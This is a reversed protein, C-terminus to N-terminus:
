LLRQVLETLHQLLKYICMHVQIHLHSQFKHLNHHASHMSDMKLTKGFSTLIKLTCQLHKENGMPVIIGTDRLESTNM